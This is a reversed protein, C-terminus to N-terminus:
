QPVFFPYPEPRDSLPEFAAEISESERRQCGISRRLDRTTRLCQDYLWLPWRMIIFGPRILADRIEVPYSLLPVVSPNLQVALFGSPLRRVRAGVTPPGNILALCNTKLSQHVACPMSLEADDVVDPLITLTSATFYVPLNRNYAQVGTSYRPLPGKYVPPRTESRVSALILPGPM